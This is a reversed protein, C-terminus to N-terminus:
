TPRPESKNAKQSSGDKGGQGYTGATPKPGKKRKKIELSALAPKSWAPQREMRKTNGGERRKTGEEDTVFDRM